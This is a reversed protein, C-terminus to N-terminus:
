GDRRQQLPRHKAAVQAWRDEDVPRVLGEQAVSAVLTGAEDFLRGLALGRAGSASPSQADYLLWEDARLPRHFWIAHDLSAGMVPDLSFAIAHRVLVPYLLTIDSLYVFMAAHVLPDDPLRGAARVWVRHRASERPGEDRQVFPPPDIVRMEVTHALAAAITIRGAFPALTAALDPLTDPAPVDPMPDQHDYGEEAVQFSAALSFIAKGRQIGHVRRTTFSGGDRIRDVSFVTPLTPDGPRLFYSHLSHVQRDAPVTRAAAVLAQAATQGGFTRPLGGTPHHGRFINEEIPELALVALLEDVAAQGRGPVVALADPDTGDAPDDDPTPLERV